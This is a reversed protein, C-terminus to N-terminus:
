KIVAQSESLVIGADSITRIFFKGRPLVLTPKKSAATVQVQDVPVAKVGESMYFAQVLCPFTNRCLNSSISYHKRLGGMMLWTPRGSKLITRPHFIQADFNTVQKEEVFYKGTDSVFITPEKLWGKDAVYQYLPKEYERSSREIMFTQDISFPTIGTIEKFNQAMSLLGRGFGGKNIHAYGAHVLIKAKPDKALIRDYLNQAQGRERKKICADPDKEDPICEKNEEYPVVTFGLQFATRILDGYVPENTYIGTKGFQPYERQNLETDVDSLTEAAFYRFGKEYLVKLLQLTFARHMPIHHAENVFIVQHTDAESKIVGLAAMPKFSDIPSSHNTLAPQPKAPPRMQDFDTLAQQYEGIISKFGAASQLYSFVKPSELYEKEQKQLQIGVSFYKASDGTKSAQYLAMFPDPLEASSKSLETQALSSSFSFCNLILVVLIVIMLKKM